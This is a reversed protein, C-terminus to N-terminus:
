IFLAYDDGFYSDLISRLLLRLICCCNLRFATPECQVGSLINQNKKKVLAYVWKNIKYMNNM